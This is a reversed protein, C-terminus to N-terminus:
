KREGKIINLAIHNSLVPEKVNEVGLVEKSKSSWHEWGLMEQGWLGAAKTVSTVGGERAGQRM